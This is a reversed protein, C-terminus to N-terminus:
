VGNTLGKLRNFKSELVKPETDLAAALKILEPPTLTEGKLVKQLCSLALQGDQRESEGLDEAVYRAIFIFAAMRDDSSWQPIAEQLQGLTIKGERLAFWEDVARNVLASSSIHKADPLEKLQKLLEKKLNVAQWDNKSV